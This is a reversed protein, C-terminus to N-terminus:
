FARRWVWECQPLGPKGGQAPVGLRVQNEKVAYEDGPRWFNLKLMKEYMTRYPGKEAGAGKLAAAYKAPDDKWRLANTLGEVYVSFWVVRPDVDEWTAIGWLTEGVAIPKKPMEFTSLFERNRDERGRIAAMALPIYKDSYVKTFGAAENQLRNHVEMTFRPIFTVPKDVTAVNYTGDKEEVPHYIKGPNTVSYLLYWILKREMRGPPVPIDVWMMRVPKFQFDLVFVDQRFTIDQAWAFNALETVTHVSYTGGYEKDEDTPAMVGPALKRYPLAAGAAGGAPVKAAPGAPAPRAGAPQAGAPKPAPAPAAPPQARVWAGAFLMGAVAVIGLASRVVYNM